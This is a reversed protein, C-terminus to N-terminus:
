YRAVIAARWRQGFTLTGCGTFTGTASTLRYGVDITKQNSGSGAILEAALAFGCGNSFVPTANHSIVSVLLENTQTTAIPGSSPTASNGSSVRKQDLGSLGSFETAVAATLGSFSPYTARISDGASLGVGLRASCVFQRGVANVDTNVTYVNGRSDSCGVIGSNTGAEVAVIVTDGATVGADPVLITLSSNASKSLTAGGITKVLRIAGPPTPNPTPTPSPTPTPNPTPTPSPTPTSTPTPNPTPTPRPTPTSTPTPTPNSTPTSTPTPSPTPTPTPTPSGTSTISVTATSGVSVTTITFGSVPDVLSKGIALPADTFSTTAPTTDVLMSKDPTGTPGNDDPSVRITVGAVPPSGTAFTDFAGYRARYDLYLWTGNGRAVRLSKVTGAAGGLLPSLTYTGTTATVAEGAALWAFQGVAHSDNHYTPASGMVTFPDGYESYTCTTSLAVRVGGSTCSLSSAHMIGFNHSLEHAIVRLDFSGNNYSYKGNIYALGAWGCSEGPWAFVINTYTSLDIGATAAATLAQSGWTSWDCNANTAPITFYGFVQGNVSTAGRSEEEFFNKVSGSNTFVIGTGVTATVAAGGATIQRTDNSFNILLVAVNRATTAVAAAALVELNDATSGTSLETADGNLQGHVRVRAGGIHGPGADAFDLQVRGTETELWYLHPSATVFNDAHAVDLIGTLVADGPGGSPGEHGLALTPAVLALLLLLVFGRLRRRM